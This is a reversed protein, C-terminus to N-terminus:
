LPDKQGSLTGLPVGLATGEKITPLGRGAWKLASSNPRCAGEWFRMRIYCNGCLLGEIPLALHPEKLVNQAMAALPQILSSWLAGGPYGTSAFPEWLRGVHHSWSSGLAGLPVWKSALPKCLSEWSVGFAALAGKQLGLAVWKPALPSM